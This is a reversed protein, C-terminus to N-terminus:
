KGVGVRRRRMTGLLPRIIMTSVLQAQNWAVNTKPRTAISLTMANAGDVITNAQLATMLTQYATLATANLRNDDTAPTVFSLPPAPFYNRGRGHQGKTLTYKSLVAAVTTPYEDGAVTGNQTAGPVANVFPIRALNSMCSVKVSLIAASAAALIGRYATLCAAQWSVAINQESAATQANTSAVYVFTNLWLQQDLEGLAQVTYIPLAIVPLPPNVRM